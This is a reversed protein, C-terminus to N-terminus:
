RQASRLVGSANGELYRRPRSHSVDHLRGPRSRVPRAERPGPGRTRGRGAPSPFCPGGEAHNSGGASGTGDLNRFWGAAALVLFDSSKRNFALSASGHYFYMSSVLHSRPGNEAPRKPEGANGREGGNGLRGPRLLRGQAREADAAAMRA